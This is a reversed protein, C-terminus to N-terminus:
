LAGTSSSISAARPVAKLFAEAEGYTAFRAMIWGDKTQVTYHTSKM